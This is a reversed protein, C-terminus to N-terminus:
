TRWRDSTCRICFIEAEPIVGRRQRVQAWHTIGSLGAVKPGSHTVQDWQPAMLALASAQVQQRM